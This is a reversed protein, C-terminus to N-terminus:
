AIFTGLPSDLCDVLQAVNHPPTVVPITMVPASISMPALKSEYVEYQLKSVVIIRYIRNDEQCLNGKSACNQGKNLPYIASGRYLKQNIQLM